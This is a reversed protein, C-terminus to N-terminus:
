AASATRVAARRGGDRPFEYGAAEYQPEWNPRRRRPFLPLAHGGGHRLCASQPAGSRVSAGARHVDSRKRGTSPLVPLVVTPASSVFGEIAGGSVMADVLQEVAQRSQGPVNKVEIRSFERMLRLWVCSVASLRRALSWIKPIM